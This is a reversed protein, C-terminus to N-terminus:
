RSAPPALTRVARYGEAPADYDAAAEYRSGHAEAGDAWAFFGAETGPGTRPGAGHVRARLHPGHRRRGRADPLGRLGRAAPVAPRGAPLVRRGRVRAAPRAGAPVRGALRRRHRRGRRGRRGHPAAHGAGPQAPERRAARRVPQGARPLPRARRGPHRRAGRRRQPGPLLRGPRAGRHRPRAAGAALAPEDRGAPQPADGRPRRPRHRPHQRQAPEPGRHRGARPRGRHLPDAHHLERLPLEAPLRRGEPVPEEAAGAAAPLHLLVRLPQRVHAGPRVARRAGRRRAARRGAEAGGLTLELGGRRVDLELDAEDVLRTWEIVDRPVEGDIALIEDGEVIGASAAPSGPAVAVVRPASM